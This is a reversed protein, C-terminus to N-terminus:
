DYYSNRSPGEPANSLYLIRWLAVFEPFFLSIYEHSFPFINPMSISNIKVLKQFATTKAQLQEELRQTKEMVSERLKNNSTQLKQVEEVLQSIQLCCCCCCILCTVWATQKRRSNVIVWGSVSYEEYFLRQKRILVVRRIYWWLYYWSYSKRASALRYWFFM